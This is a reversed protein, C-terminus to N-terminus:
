CSLIIKTGDVEQRDQKKDEPNDFFPVHTFTDPIYQLYDPSMPSSVKKVWEKKSIIKRGKWFKKNHKKIKNESEAMKEALRIAEKAASDLGTM